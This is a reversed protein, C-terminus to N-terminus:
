GVFSDYLVIYNYLLSSKKFSVFNRKFIYLYIFIQRISTVACVLDQLQLIDLLCVLSCYLM